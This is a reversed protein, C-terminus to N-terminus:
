TPNAVQSDKEPPPLLGANAFVQQWDRWTHDGIPVFVFPNVGLRGIKEDPLWGMFVNPDASKSFTDKEHRERIGQSLETRPKMTVDTIESWPCIGLAGDAILQLGESHFGEAVFLGEIMEGRVPEIWGRAYIGRDVPM